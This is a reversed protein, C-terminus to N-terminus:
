VGFRVSSPINVVTNDLMKSISLDGRPCDKFLPLDNMLKWIPRSMVQCNNSYDLFEERQKRDSFRIANLWYNSRTESLEKVSNVTEITTFFDHYKQATIRKNSVYSELQELQACALAANLNPM